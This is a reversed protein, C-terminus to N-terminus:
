AWEGQRRRRAFVAMAVLKLPWVPLTMLLQLAPLGGIFARGVARGLAETAKAAPGIAEVPGHIWADYEPLRFPELLGAHARWETEDAFPAFALRQRAEAWWAEVEPRNRGRARLAFLPYSLLWAAAFPWWGVFPQLALAAALAALHRRALRVDDAADCGPPMPMAARADVFDTKLFALDRRLSQWEPESLPGVTRHWTTVLLGGLHSDADEDPIPQMRGLRARFATRSVEGRLFAALQEAFEDRCRRDVPM